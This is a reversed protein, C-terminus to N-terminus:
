RVTAYNRAFASFMLFLSKTMNNNKKTREAKQEAIVILTRTCPKNKRLVYNLEAIEERDVGHQRKNRETCMSFSRVNFENVNLNKKRQTNETRQTRIVIFLARQKEDKNTWNLLLQACICLRLHPTNSINGHQLASLFENIMTSPSSVFVDHPLLFTIISSIRLCFKRGCISSQCSCCLLSLFFFLPVNEIKLSFWRFGFM